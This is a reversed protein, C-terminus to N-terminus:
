LLGLFVNVHLCGAVGLLVFKESTMDQRLYVPAIKLTHRVLHCFFASFAQSHPNRRFHRTDLTAREINVINSWLSQSFIPITKSAATVLTRVDWTTVSVLLWVWQTVQQRMEGMKRSKCPSLPSMLVDLLIVSKFIIFAPELKISESGPCIPLICSSQLAVWGLM